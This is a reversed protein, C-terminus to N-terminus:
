DHAGTASAPVFMDDTTAVNTEVKSWTTEVIGILPHAIKSKSHFAIQMGGVDRYDDMMTQVGVIGIGPIQVLADTRMLRGSAEDIYLTMGTGLKPVVRVLLMSGDGVKIRKLVDVQEFHNRWDGLLVPLRDLTVQQRPLDKLEDLGTAPSISWARTGDTMVTQRSGAINANTRSGRADFTTQISGKMKRDVYNISGSLQVAGLQQIREVHHAKGVMGIVQALTPLDTAPAHRPDHEVEKGFYTRMASVTGDTATDFAIWVKPNAEAVFRQNARDAKFLLHMAGPRDLMLDDGRPTVVYYAQAATEDWYLGALAQMDTVPAATHTSAKTSTQPHPNLLLEEVSKELSIGSLTGRSQTFYLVMLDQEPWAWAHTGDSGDHGFMVPRTNGDGDARARITWLQGYYDGLGSTRKDNGDLAHRPQLARSVAAPSLLAHGALKGGDMWLALFKAYDTTTSYLSQSGLFLPFIPPDSPEWHKEWAGTGGSYAVPIRRKVAANDGLLTYTDHMALPDLIRQQIVQELPNHTIAEVMAGLIDASADSYRFGKGPDFLLEAQAAEAAIDSLNAYTALPKRLTTMPFGATHTLLHEVTIGRMRPKDFAPLIQHVPTDLRLRGDDVLMQIVTGVLPKTMSRVCYVADDRMPIGADRDQLGYAKRLLTHRGKIVLLEGGVIEQRDVLAQVRKDLEALAASPIGVSEPRAVSFVSDQTAIVPEAAGAPTAALLALACALTTLMSNPRPLANKSTM